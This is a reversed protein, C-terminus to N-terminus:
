VGCCRCACKSPDVEAAVLELCLSKGLLDGIDDLARTLSLSSLVGGVTMQVTIVAKLNITKIVGATSSEGFGAKIQNVSNRTHRRSRFFSQHKAPFALTNLSTFSSLSGSSDGSGDDAIFNKYGRTALPPAPSQHGYLHSVQPKLM